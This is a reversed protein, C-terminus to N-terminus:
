KVRMIWVMSINVPRTESGHRTKGATSSTPNGLIAKGSTSTSNSKCRDPGGPHLGNNGGGGIRDNTTNHAHGSDLHKHSQMKDWQEIGSTSSGRIFRGQSNLNPIVRGHYASMRDDLEQGNCQVWSGGLPLAPTGGMDKHWPIISGVPVVGPEVSRVRDILGKDSAGAGSQAYVVCAGVTVALVLITGRRKM